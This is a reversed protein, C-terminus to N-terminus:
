RAWGKLMKGRPIGAIAILHWEQGWMEKKWMEVPIGYKRFLFGAVISKRSHGFLCFLGMHDTM